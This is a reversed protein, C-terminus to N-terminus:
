GANNRANQNAELGVIDAIAFPDDTYWVEDHLLTNSNEDDRYRKCFEEWSMSPKWAWRM